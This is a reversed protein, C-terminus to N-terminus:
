SLISMVLYCDIWIGTMCEGRDGIVTLKTDDPLYTFYDENEVETSNDLFICCSEKKLCFKASAKQKVEELSKAVIGITRRQEENYIRFPRCRVHLEAM